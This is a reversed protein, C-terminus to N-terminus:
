EVLVELNMLSELNIPTVKDNGVPYLFDKMSALSFLNRGAQWDDNRELLLAGGGLRIVADRNPFIGVVKFRRKVEKNISELSNNSHISRQHKEPFQKYTLM